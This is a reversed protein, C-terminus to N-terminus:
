IEIEDVRWYPDPVLEEFKDKYGKSYWLLGTWAIMAGNDLALDLPPVGFKIGREECMTRVMEQLRKNAAVGGTLVVEKKNLHAVARETIETLMAFVTEQISYCIDEIKYKKTKVINKIYTYLGSLQIDMGKVTYPLDIIEKGKRALEEIKPGAPFGIGMERGVSDLFNGVGMDLTEGFVRYRKGEYAIVQTNAGSVYLVVPDKFGTVLKAIEIHAIPHNVGIIDTSFIKSLLKAIFIGLSLTPYLGPGKSVSILDIKYKKIEDETLQLLLDKIKNKLESNGYYITIKKDFVKIEEKNKKEGVIINQNEVWIKIGDVELIRKRNFPEEFVIEKGEIAKNLFSLLDFFKKNLIIFGARDLSRLLVNKFEKLHLESAERPHIGGLPNKYVVKENSLIKGDKRVIGVGFTHATCEIGLCYM